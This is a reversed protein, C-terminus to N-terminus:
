ARCRRTTPEDPRQRHRRPIGQRRDFRASNVTISVTAVNSDIGLNDKVKYTFSDPGTYNSAPTYTIAGTTPNVSITGHSAAAVITVTTANLTGDSDSDNGLVNIVVPSNKYTTASDNVATPPTDVTISVTAVNSFAGLNDKVKYTFSDPARITRPQLTRLRALANSQHQTTGHSAARSSALRTSPTSRAM